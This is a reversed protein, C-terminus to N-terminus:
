HDSSPFPIQPLPENQPEDAFDSQYCSLKVIGENSNEPVLVGATNTTDQTHAVPVCPSLLAIAAIATVAPRFM